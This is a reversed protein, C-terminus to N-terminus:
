GGTSLGSSDDGHSRHLVGKLVGVGKAAESDHAISLFQGLGQFIWPFLPCNEKVRVLALQHLSIKITWGPDRTGSASALGNYGQMSRDKQCTGVRIAPHEQSGERVGERVSQPRLKTTKNAALGLKSLSQFYMGQIADSFPEELGLKALEL